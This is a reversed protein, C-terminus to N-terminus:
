TSILVEDDESLRGLERYERLCAAIAYMARPVVTFVDTGFLHGLIRRGEKPDRPELGYSATDFPTIRLDMPFDAPKMVMPYPRQRFGRFYVQLSPRYSAGVDLTLYPGGCWTSIAHWLLLNPTQRRKGEPTSAHCLMFLKRGVGALLIWGLREGTDEAIAVYAHHRDEFVAPIDDDNPTFSRLVDLEETTTDFPRIRVGMRRGKRVSTRVRKDVADWAAQDDMLDILNGRIVYDKSVYSLPITM